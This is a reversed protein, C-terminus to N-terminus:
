KKFMVKTSCVDLMLFGTKVTAIHITSLCLTQMGNILLDTMMKLLCSHCPVNPKDRDNCCPDLEVPGGFYEVVKDVIEKPTDWTDKRNGTTATLAALSAAPM